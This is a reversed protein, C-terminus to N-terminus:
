QLNNWPRPTLCTGRRQWSTVRGQQWRGPRALRPSVAGWLVDATGMGPGSADRGGCCPWLWWGVPMEQLNSGPIPLTAQLGKWIGTGPGPVERPEGVEWGWQTGTTAGHQEMPLM